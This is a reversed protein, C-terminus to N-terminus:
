LPPYAQLSPSQVLQLFSPFWSAFSFTESRDGRVPTGGEGSEGSMKIFRLYYWSAFWGFQILIYPSQYGLICAINSLTVYAM